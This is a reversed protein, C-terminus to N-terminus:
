KGEKDPEFAKEPYESPRSIDNIVTVYERDRSIVEYNRGRTLYYGHEDICIM